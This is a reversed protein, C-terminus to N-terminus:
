HEASDCKSCTQPQGPYWVNDTYDGLRVFSQIDKTIWIQVIIVETEYKFGNQKTYDQSERQFHGITGYEGLKKIVEEIEAELPIYRIKIIKVQSKDRGTPILYDKGEQRFISTPGNSALFDEFQRASKLKVLVHKTQKNYQISLIEGNQFGLEKLWLNIQLNSTPEPENFDYYMTNIRMKPNILSQKKKQKKKIKKM